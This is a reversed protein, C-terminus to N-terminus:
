KKFKIKNPINININSGGNGIQGFNDRGWVYLQNDTGIAASHYGGISISKPKIGKSLEIKKPTSINVNSGDGLQGYENNGWVYLNNDTGIAMSHYYGAYIEKPKVGEALKIKTPIKKDLNAGGDGLQGFYDSGWTYLEGDSGIAMSYYYGLAISKPKVETGLTIKTPKLKNKNDGTGLQGFQNDGWAYLEGDSGIAMSHYTGLDLEITKIGVGLNTKVPNNIDIDKTSTKGNGLQGYENNGWFYIIGDNGVMASHYGGIHISNPQIGIALIKKTPKLGETWTYLEKDSGIALTYYGGAYVSMPRIGNPFKIETPEGTGGILSTGSDDKGWAYLRGNNSIAMSSEHTLSVKTIGFSEYPPVKDVPVSPIKETPTNDEVEIPTKDHQLENDGNKLYGYYYVKDTKISYVYFDKENKEHGYRTKTHYEGSEDLNIKYLYEENDNERKLVEKLSPYIDSMDNIESLRAADNNEYIPFRDYQQFYNTMAYELAEIDSIMASVKANKQVGTFKPLAMGVLLSIVVIVIVLEILTFRKSTKNRVKTKKM